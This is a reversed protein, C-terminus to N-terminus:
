YCAFRQRYQGPTLATLEKFMRRLNADGSFGLGASISSLPASTLILRESLQNLKIRHAYSAAAMGTEGLVKRALSRGSLGLASALAAIRIQEAPLREALDHLQRLLGSPQEILSMEQFADHSAAPSVQRELLHQAIPLYGTM